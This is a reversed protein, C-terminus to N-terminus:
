SYVLRGEVWTSRVHSASPSALVDAFPADLLCLDAQAGVQVRRVPGGPDLPDTLYWGLATAAEVRENAGLVRGTRTFRNSAAAVAMWPDISTVPADSGAAVRVGANLLSGARHLFALDDGDVVNLYHDGREFVLGPQVIVTVGGDALLADLDAPLVSGHEIRDGQQIGALALATAATVTEARSVAHIAVARGVAHHKEIVKALAEPDLGVVEDVLIKAPGVTAWGEVVSREEEHVGLLTLRQPLSGDGAAQQLLEIRGAGLNPTADTVGTIGFAALEAGLEKMSPASVGVREALWSDLRLLRGTPRGEFDREVGSPIDNTLVADLGATSLVWALGTRHQVRVKTPGVLADIRHRDLSGHRHEDYGSARIWGDPTSSAASTLARDFSAADHLVDLDVGDRRAAMALLHVHHDHLGPLLAGGRADIVSADEASSDEGVAVIFGDEIVVSVLRGDVEANTIVVRMIVM